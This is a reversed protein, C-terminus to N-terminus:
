SAATSGSRAAPSACRRPLLGMLSLMTLSKGSGSEGVVAVTQGAPVTLDVGHVIERRAPRMVRLDTWKAAPESMTVAGTLRLVDPATPLPEPLRLPGAGPVIAGLIRGGSAGTASPM